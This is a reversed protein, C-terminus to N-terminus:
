TGYRAMFMEVAGRAVREVDADTIDPRSQFVIRPFIHAKCLEAFQEAALDLDDIKLEGRAIAGSLLEALKSRMLAPGSDYFDQGIQPFRDAEAVCIRFIRQGFNSMFFRIIRHAVDHLLAEAPLGTDLEAEALDAQRQCEARAVEIFLLAKDPFYSYLTAKSVGAARAIEDVSAGEYGHRLFVERAGAVVQDFKRGKKIQNGGDPM